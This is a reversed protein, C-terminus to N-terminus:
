HADKGHGGAFRAAEGAGTMLASAISRGKNGGSDGASASSPNSIFIVTARVAKSTRGEGTGNRQQLTPVPEGTSLTDPQLPVRPTATLSAESQNGPSAVGASIPPSAVSRTLTEREQARIRFKKHYRLRPQYDVLAPVNSQAVRHAYSLVVFLSPAACLFAAFLLMGVGARLGLLWAPIKATEKLVSRVRVKLQISSGAFDLNWPTPDQAAHLRAFRVLCEAYTARREPSNRVVALDCALESELEMKRQAFWVAPHFFLLSRCLSAVNNFFFDRRAVHQLEHRFIDALESEDQELCIPPLLVVPHILGFTAPSYIGSLVLLKVKEAGFKTAISRFMTEIPDPAKYAFRLVWRLRVQKKIRVLLFYGLAVLYLSALVREVISLPYAWSAPMQWIAVPETAATAHIPFALSPGPHPIFSLLLWLWYGGAISLFAFWVLFKRRPSVVIKSIAWCICFGLFTKLLFGTFAAVIALQTEPHM